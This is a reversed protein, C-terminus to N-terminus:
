NDVINGADTYLINKELWMEEKKMNNNEFDWYCWRNWLILMVAIIKKIASVSEQRWSNM